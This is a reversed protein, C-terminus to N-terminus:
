TFGIDKFIEGPFIEMSDYVPFRLEEKRFPSGPPCTDRGPFIPEEYKEV